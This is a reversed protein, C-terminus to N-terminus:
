DKTSLYQKIKRKDREWNRIDYEFDMYVTGDSCYFWDVGKLDDRVIRSIGKKTNTVDREM